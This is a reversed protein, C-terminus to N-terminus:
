LMKVAKSKIKKMRKLERQVNAIESNLRPMVSSKRRWVGGTGRQEVRIWVKGDLGREVSGIPVYGRSTPSQRVM